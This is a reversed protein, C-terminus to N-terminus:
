KMILNRKPNRRCHSGRAAPTLAIISSSNDGSPCRLNARFEAGVSGAGANTDLSTNSRLGVLVCRVELTLAPFAAVQASPVHSMLETPNRPLSPASRRGHVPIQWTFPRERVGCRPTGVMPLTLDGM